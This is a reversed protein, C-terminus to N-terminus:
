VICLYLGRNNIVVPPDVERLIDANSYFICDPKRPWKFHNPPGTPVMVSVEAVDENAFIIEGPYEKDDYKVVVWKGPVLSRTETTVPILNLTEASLANVMATLGTTLDSRIIHLKNIGQVPLVNEWPNESSIIKEIYDEEIYWVQTKTEFQSAVQAFDKACQITCGDGQAMMKM